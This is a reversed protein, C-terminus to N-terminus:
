AAYETFIRHVVEAQDPDISRLGRVLDGNQDLRNAKRYGYALGAPARGQAVAGRQGRKIKAGLEKRFHADM